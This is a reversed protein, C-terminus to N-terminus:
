RPGYALIVYQLWLVTNSDSIGLKNFQITPVLYEPLSTAPIVACTGEPLDAGAWTYNSVYNQAYSSLSYAAQITMFSSPNNELSLPNIPLGTTKDFALVHHNSTESIVIPTTEALKVIGSQQSLVLEQFSNLNIGLTLPVLGIMIPTMPRYFTTTSFDAVNNPAVNYVLYKYNPNNNFVSHKVIVGGQILFVVTGTEQYFRPDLTGNETNRCNSYLIGAQTLMHYIPTGSTSPSLPLLRYEQHTAMEISLIARYFDRLKTDSFLSSVLWCAYYGNIVDSVQLSSAEIISSTQWSIGVGFDFHRMMPIYQDTNYPQAFDRMLDVMISQYRDRASRRATNDFQISVIIYYIYLLLGYQGVHNDGFVQNQSSGFTPDGTAITFLTPSYGLQVESRTTQLLSDFAAMLHTRLPPLLPNVILSSTFNFVAYTVQAFTFIKRVSTDFTDNEIDIAYLAQLDRYFITNLRKLSNADFASYIDFTGFRPPQILDYAVDFRGTTAIFLSTAGQPSLYYNKGVPPNAGQISSAGTITGVASMSLSPVFVLPQGDDSAYTIVAQGNRNSSSVFATLGRVPEASLITNIVIQDINYWDTPAGLLDIPDEIYYRIPLITIVTPLSASTSDAQILVTTDALQTVTCGPTMKVIFDILSTQSRGLPPPDMLHFPPPPVTVTRYTLLTAGTLTFPPTTHATLNILPIVDYVGLVDRYFSNLSMTAGPSLVVVVYPVIQSLTVRMSFNGAISTYIMEASMNGVERASYGMESPIIYPRGATANWLIPATFFTPAVDSVNTARTKPDLGGPTGCVPSVDILAQGQAYPRTLAIGFSPVQLSRYLNFVGTYTYPMGPTYTTPSNQSVLRSWWRSTSFPVSSSYYASANIPAGSDVGFTQYNPNYTPPTVSQGNSSALPVRTQVSKMLFGYAGDNNTPFEVQFYTSTVIAFGLIILGIAIGVVSYVCIIGIDHLTTNKLVSDGIM